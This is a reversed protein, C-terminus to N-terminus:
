KRNHSQAHGSCTVLSIKACRTGKRRRSIYDVVHDHPHKLKWGTDVMSGM